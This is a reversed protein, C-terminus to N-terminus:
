RLPISSFELRGPCSETVDPGRIDPCQIHLCRARRFHRHSNVLLWSLGQLHFSRLIFAEAIGPVHFVETVPRSRDCTASQSQGGWSALTHRQRVQHCMIRTAAHQNSVAPPPRTFLQDCDTGRLGACHIDSEDGSDSDWLEQHGPKNLQM